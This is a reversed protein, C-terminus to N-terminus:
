VANRRQYHKVKRLHEKFEAHHGPNIKRLRDFGRNTHGPIDFRFPDDSFRRGPIEPQACDQQIEDAYDIGSEMGTHHYVTEM